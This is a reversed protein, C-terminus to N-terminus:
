PVEIDRLMDLLMDVRTRVADTQEDLVRARNEAEELRSQKEELIKELEQNRNKLTSYAEVIERIRRELEGFRGLEVDLRSKKRYCGIKAQNHWSM